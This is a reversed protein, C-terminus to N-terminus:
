EVVGDGWRKKHFKADAEEANAGHAEAMDLGDVLKTTVFSFYCRNAGPVAVIDFSGQLQRRAGFNEAALTFQDGGRQICDEDGRWVEGVGRQRQLDEVVAFMQKQLLRTADVLFFAEAHEGGGILGVAHHHETVFEAIRGIELSYGVQHPGALDAGRAHDPAAFKATRKLLFRLVPNLIIPTRATTQHVFVAM